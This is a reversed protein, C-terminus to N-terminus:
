ISSGNLVRVFYRFERDGCFVNITKIGFKFPIMLNKGVTEVPTLRPAMKKLVHGALETLKFPLRNFRNGNIDFASINSCHLPKDTVRFPILIFYAALITMHNIIIHTIWVANENEIFRTKDFFSGVRDTYGSLVAAGNSLHIITLDTYERRIGGGLPVGQNVLPKENWLVLRRGMGAFFGLMINSNILSQRRVLEYVM